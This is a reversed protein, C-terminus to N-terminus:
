LFGRQDQTQNKTPVLNNSSSTWIPNRTLQFTNLSSTMYCVARKTLGNKVALHTEIPVQRIVSLIKLFLEYFDIITNYSKVYPKHRQTKSQLSSFRVILFNIKMQLFTSTNKFVKVYTTDSNLQSKMVQFSTSVNYINRSNPSSVHM